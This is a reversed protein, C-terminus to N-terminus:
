SRANRLAERARHAVDHDTSEALFDLLRLENASSTDGLIYALHEQQMPSWKPVETMLASLLVEGGSNLIQSANCSGVDYWYDTDPIDLANVLAEISDTIPMQMLGLM